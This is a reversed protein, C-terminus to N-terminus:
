SEYRRATDIVGQIYRTAASLQAIRAQLMAPVKAAMPPRPVQPDAFLAALLAELFGTSAHARFYTMWAAAAQRYTAQNHQSAALRQLRPLPLYELGPGMPLPLVPQARRRSTRRPAKTTKM